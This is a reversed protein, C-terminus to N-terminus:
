NAVVEINLVWDRLLSLCYEQIVADIESVPEKKPCAGLDPKIEPELANWGAIVKKDADWTRVFVPSPEGLKISKTPM